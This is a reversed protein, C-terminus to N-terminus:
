KFSPAIAIYLGVAVLLIGPIYRLHFPEGVLLTAFIAGMLIGLAGIMDYHAIPIHTIAKLYLVFAVTNCVGFLVIGGMQKLSLSTVPEAKTIWALGFASLCIILSSFGILYYPSFLLGMSKAIPSHLAYLFVAFFAVFYYTM